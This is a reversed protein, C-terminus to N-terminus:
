SAEERFPVFKLEFLRGDRDKWMLKSVSRDPNKWVVLEECCIGTVRSPNDALCRRLAVRWRDRGIRFVGDFGAYAPTVCPQPEATKPPMPPWLIAWIASLLTRRNM